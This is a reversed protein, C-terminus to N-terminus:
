GKRGSTSATSATNATNATSASGLTATRADTVERQMLMHAVILALPTLGMLAGMVGYSLSRDEPLGERRALINFILLANINM